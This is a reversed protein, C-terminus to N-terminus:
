SGPAGLPQRRRPTARRSAPRAPRDPRDRDPLAALGVRRDSALASIGHLLPERLGADILTVDILRDGPDAHPAFTANPGVSRISMAEVGIYRGDHVVGDVEIRWDAEPADAVIDALLHRARDLAGGLILSPKEADSGREILRGMFGGGFAEVFRALRGDDRIEWVDLAASRRPRGAHSSRAADGGISLTRAINNATGGPLIAVPTDRGALATLVPGVTGDGGLM